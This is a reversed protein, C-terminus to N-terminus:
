FVSFLGVRAAKARIYPIRFLELWNINNYIVPISGGAGMQIQGPGPM